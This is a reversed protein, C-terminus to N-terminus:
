KKENEKVGNGYIINENAELSGYLETFTSDNFEKLSNLYITGGVADPLKCNNMKKVSNLLLNGSVKKPFTTSVIEQVFPMNINGGVFYPMTVFDLRKIHKADFNGGVTKPLSIDDFETLSPIIFDGNIEIPLIVNSIKKLKLAEFGGEIYRPFVVSSTEVVNPIVFNGNVNFPFDTDFVKTANKLVINGLLVQNPFNVNRIEEVSVSEISGIVFNPFAFDELLDMGTLKINGYHFTKDGTMLEDLSTSIKDKDWGYILSIDDKINRTEIITKIVVADKPNETNLNKEYLMKLDEITLDQKNKFKFYVKDIEESLRKM